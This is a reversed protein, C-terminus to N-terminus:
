GSRRTGLRLVGDEFVKFGRSSLWATVREREPHTARVVNSLYNLGRAKAERQLSDIIFSGIGHDQQEPAVALLVEADGWVADLWGYGAVEGNVEVRWWDGPLVDGLKYSPLDFVGPPAGGVIRTKPADWRPAEERIWQFPAPTNLAQREEARAGAGSQREM